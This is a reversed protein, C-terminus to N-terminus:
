ISINKTKKYYQRIISHISELDEIAPLPQRSAEARRRSNDGPTSLSLDFPHGGSQILEHAERHAILRERAATIIRIPVQGSAVIAIFISENFQPIVDSEAVRPPKDAIYDEFMEDKQSM